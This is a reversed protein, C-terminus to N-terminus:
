KIMEQVKQKHEYNIKNLESEYENILKEKNDLEKIIEEKEKILKNNLIKSEKIKTETEIKNEENDNFYNALEQIKKNNTNIKELKFIEEFYKNSEM